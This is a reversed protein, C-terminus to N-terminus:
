MGLLYLVVLFFILIFAFSLIIFILNGSFVSVIFFVLSLAYLINGYFLKIPLVKKGNFYLLVVSAIIFIFKM